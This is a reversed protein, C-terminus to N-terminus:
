KILPHHSNISQLNMYSELTGNTRVEASGFDWGQLGNTKFSRGIIWFHVESFINKKVNMKFEFVSVKKDMKM